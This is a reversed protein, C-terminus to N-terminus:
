HITFSNRDFETPDTISNAQIYPMNFPSSPFTVPPTAPQMAADEKRASSQGQPARPQTRLDPTHLLFVVVGVLLVIAIQFSKPFAVRFCCEPAAPFNRATLVRERVLFIRTAVAITTVRM